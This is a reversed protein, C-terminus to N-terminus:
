FVFPISRIGKKYTNKKSLFIYRIHVAVVYEGEGRVHLTFFLVFLASLGM